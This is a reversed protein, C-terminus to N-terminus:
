GKKRGKTNSEVVTSLRTQNLYNRVNNNVQEILGGLVCKNRSCASMEFLCSGVTLPGEIVEYIELLTLKGPKAVLAFGGKPGRISRVHGAKALRQLVKSLHFESVDFQEAIYKTSLVEGPKEALLVMAHFALSAAESIKLLNSM